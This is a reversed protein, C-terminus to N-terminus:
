SLPSAILELKETSRVIIYGMENGIVELSVLKRLGKNVSERTAGVMNALDEQSLKINIQTGAQVPKGHTRALSLLRKALRRSIELFVTDEIVNSTWRLRECLVGMLRICLAPHRELFPLFHARDVRLLVTPGMAVAGATREQGDLLAIEGFVDGADLINLLIEKGEESVTHIRVRGRLIAYLCCGPDGKDFIVQNRSFSETRSFALLEEMERPALQNLLRNSALIAPDVPGIESSM